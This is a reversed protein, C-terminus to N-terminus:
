KVFDELEDEVAMIDEAQATLSKPDFGGRKIANTLHRNRAREPCDNTTHNTAQCYQCIVNSKFAEIKEPCEYFKHGQKGCNECWARVNMNNDYSVLAFKRGEETQHVIAKILAEGVDLQEQTDASLLVHLPEDEQDDQGDMELYEREYNRDADKQSGEGKM